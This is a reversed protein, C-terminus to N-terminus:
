IKIALIRGYSSLLTEQLFKQFARIDDPNHKSFMYSLFPNDLTIKKKSLADSVIQADFVGPTSFEIIEFGADSLLTQWGEVSILNMRDTPMISDHRDKLTQIDFGSGLISTIFLLGGKNLIRHLQMIAEKPSLAADISEFTLGVDVCNDELQDLTECVISFEGAASGDFRNLKVLTCHEFLELEKLATGYGPQYGLMALSKADPKYASVDQSVWDMRPQIIRKSRESFTETSIKERWFELAKSHGSFERLAEPTPRSGVYFSHCEACQHYTMGLKEFAKSVNSSSCAPCNEDATLNPLFYEAIDKEMLAVYQAILEDPRVDSKDYDEVLSISRM